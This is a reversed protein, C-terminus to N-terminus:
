KEKDESASLENVRKEIEKLADKFYDAQAKLDEIEQEKTM